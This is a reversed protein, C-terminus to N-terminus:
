HRHEWAWFLLVFVQTQRSSISYIAEESEVDQPDQLWFIFCVLHLLVYVFGGVASGNTFEDFLLSQLKFQVMFIQWTYQAGSYALGVEDYKTENVHQMGSSDVFVELKKTCTGCFTPSSAISLDNLPYVSGNKQFVQNSM